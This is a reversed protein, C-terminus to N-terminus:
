DRRESQEAQAMGAWADRREGLGSFAPLRQGSRGPRAKRTEPGFPGSGDCSVDIWMADLAARRSGVGYGRCPLVEGGEEVFLKAWIAAELSRNDGAADDAEGVFVGDDIDAQLAFPTDRELLEPGVALLDLDLWAVVYFQINLAVLVPVAGDDQRALLFPAFFGPGIEFACEFCLLTDVAGDVAPDFAAEGDVEAAGHGEQGAALDIDARHTVDAGQHARRLREM